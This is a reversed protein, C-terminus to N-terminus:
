KYQNKKQEVLLRLSMHIQPQRKRDLHETPVAPLFFIELDKSCSDFLKKWFIWDNLGSKFHKQTKVIAIDPERTKVLLAPGDGCCYQAEVIVPSGVNTRLERRWRRYYVCPRAFWFLLM